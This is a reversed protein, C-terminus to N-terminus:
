LIWSHILYFKHFVAKLFNSTIHKVELKKLPQRGSTKNQGSKLLKVATKTWDYRAVDILSHTSLVLKVWVTLFEFYSYVGSFLKSITSLHPVNEIKASLKFVVLHWKTKNKQKCICSVLWNLLTQSHKPLSRFTTTLYIFSNDVIIDDVVYRRYHHPKFDSLFNQLCHNEFYILFVNALAQGLPSGTTVGDVKCLKGNFVM